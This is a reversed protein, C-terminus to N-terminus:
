NHELCFSNIDELIVDVQKEIVSIEALLEQDVCDEAAIDNPNLDEWVMESEESERNQNQLILSRAQSQYRFMLGRKMRIDEKLWEVLNAWQHLELQFRNIGKSQLKEFIEPHSM